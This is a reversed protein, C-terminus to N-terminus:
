EIYLAHKSQLDTVNLFECLPMLYSRFVKQYTIM